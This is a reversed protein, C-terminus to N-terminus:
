AMLSGAFGLAWVLSPYVILREMGGRGLGYYHHSVYLGLFLLTALGLLASYVKLPTGNIIRTSLIASLGSFLFTVLAFVGHIAGTTEPFVGVGAAGVGTLVITVTMPAWRFKRQLPVSSAAVLVGLLLVSTNFIPAAVGVGLDSIYNTSVSYDPYVSEAVVLLILFQAAGAFILSGALKGQEM